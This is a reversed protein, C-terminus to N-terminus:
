LIPPAPGVGCVVPRLRRSSSRARERPAQAGRKTPPRRCQRRGRGRFRRVRWREESSHSLRPDISRRRETDISSCELDRRTDSTGLSRPYQRRAALATVSDRTHGRWTPAVASGPYTQCLGNKPSYQIENILSLAFGRSGSTPDQSGAYSMGQRTLLEARLQCRHM